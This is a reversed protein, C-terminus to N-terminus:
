AKSRWKRQVIFATLPIVGALLIVAWGSCVTSYILSVPTKTLTFWLAAALVIVASVSSGFRFKPFVEEILGGSIRIFLSINIVAAVTWVILYLADGRQIFRTGGFTGVSLFPYDALVAFDGLVATILLTVAEILLLKSALLGYVGCRLKERVHGALFAAACIEGSRALDDMVASFLGRSIDTGFGINDLEFDQASSICMIILAAIFLWFLLVGSRGLAEIGRCACYVCVVLLAAIWLRSDSTSFFRAQLFNQFHLLSGATYFLFFLLYLVAAFIGFAKNKELAAGTASKKLMVTPILLVAQVVASVASATMQLSLGGGASYLPTFTMLAFARCMFLLLLFQGWGIKKTNEM